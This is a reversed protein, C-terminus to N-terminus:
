FFEIFSITSAMGEVSLNFMNGMVNQIKFVTISQGLAKTPMTTSSECVKMLYELFKAKKDNDLVQLFVEVDSTFCALHGFRHESFFLCLLLILFVNFVLSFIFLTLFINGRGFSFLIYIQHIYCLLIALLYCVRKNM